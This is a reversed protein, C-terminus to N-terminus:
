GLTVDRTRLRWFALAVFVVTYIALVLAAQGQDPLALASADQSTTAAAARTVATANRSLGYNVINAYDRNLSVLLSAILGESFAVVLGVAIGAGASRVWLAVLAALAMYPLFTYYGRAAASAIAGLDLGSTDAAALTAAVYSGVIAAVVGVFMFLVAFLAISLLKASLFAARGAGHALLTRLTGWGFETGVHSAAFVNLLIGGIGSVIGVGFSQVRDPRLLRLTENMAQEAGPQAPITGSRAAQLQAQVSVYVLVYFGVGALVILLLLVWPMWRRRLRYIESRLLRLM